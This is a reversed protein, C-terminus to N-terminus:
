LHTCQNRSIIYGYTQECKKVYNIQQGNSQRDKRSKSSWAKRISWLKWPCTNSKHNKRQRDTQKIKNQKNKNLKTTKKWDVSIFIVFNNKITRVSQFNKKKHIQHFTNRRWCLTIDILIQTKTRKRKAM